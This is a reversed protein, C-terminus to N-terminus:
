GTPADSASDAPADSSADSSAEAPADTAADGGGETAADSGADGPQGPTCAKPTGAETPLNNPDVCGLDPGGFQTTNISFSCKSQAANCCGPLSGIVPVGALPPCSPDANGPNKLEFCAAQIGLTGALSEDVDVGCKDKNAGACCPALEAVVVSYSKCTENGCKISASGGTGGTAGSGGTGGSGGTAGTGGSGGVAGTGGTSTDPGADKGGTGSSGGDDSEGGCAQALSAGLVGLGLALLLHVNRM